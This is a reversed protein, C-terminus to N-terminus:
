AVQAERQDAEAADRLARRLMRIVTTHDRAGLVRAIDVTSMPRWEAGVEPCLRTASCVRYERTATGFRRVDRFRITGRLVLALEARAVALARDHHTMPNMLAGMPVGHRTAIACTVENVWAVLTRDLRIAKCEKDTM